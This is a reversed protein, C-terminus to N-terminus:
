MANARLNFDAIFGFLTRLVQKARNKERTKHREGEQFTKKHLEPIYDHFNNM